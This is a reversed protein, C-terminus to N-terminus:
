EYYYALGVLGPGTHVGMVPTFESIFLETPNLKQMVLEQLQSAQENADAQMIALSLKRYGKVKGAVFDVIERLAHNKSRVIKIPTVLGEDDLALIPKIDILSGVMYAAKGIRGGRALYELTELSAAFGSRYSAESTIRIVESLSKGEAAARAAAIAVFGQSITAKRSDFVEITCGPYEKRLQEAAMQAVSYGSSLKSALSVCLITRAGAELLSRFTELYQGVTPAATTPLVKEIRMRRYLEQPMLDVGDLYTKGGFNVSFPLVTIKLQRAIEEPVQAVSDTVISVAPNTEMQNM